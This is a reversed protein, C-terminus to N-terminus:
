DKICRVSLFYDSKKKYSDWDSYENTASMYQFFAYDSDEESATWWLGYNGLFDFSGDSYGYGGPLATFSFRDKGNDNNSWYGKAKLDKWAAKSEYPIETGSTGDVYRLMKGWEASSPLHWGKPCAKMATEWDYLRGYQKCYYEDNDYCKSNGMEINLNEAMWVQKGMKTTWYTKNDRTDTLTNASGSIKKVDMLSKLSWCEPDFSDLEETYTLSVKDGKKIDDSACGIFSIGDGNPLRFIVECRGEHDEGEEMFVAEKIITIPGRKYPCAEEESPQSKSSTEQPKKDTGDQLCRVSFLYGKDNLITGFNDNSYISRNYAYNDYNSGIRSRNNNIYNSDVESASWWYSDSGVDAFYGGSYGYGGPLASFGFNDTGNNPKGNADNWGSKAKLYKAATESTGLKDWEANSPLHWGSPCAKIATEWDYLRGYKQCNAEDGKFCVSNGMKINLNEAMWVQEGIKVTKYTKDDRSDKMNGIAKVAASNCAEDIISKSDIDYIKIGSDEKLVFFKALVNQSKDGGAATGNVTVYNNDNETIRQWKPKELLADFIQEVTFDPCAQLKGKKVTSVDGGGCATLTLTSALALTALKIIPCASGARVISKM